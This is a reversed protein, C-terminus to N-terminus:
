GKGPKTDRQEQSSFDLALPPFICQDAAGSSVIRSRTQTANDVQKYMLVTFTFNECERGNTRITLNIADSV